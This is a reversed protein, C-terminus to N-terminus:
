HVFVHPSRSTVQRVAICTANHALELTEELQFKHLADIIQVFLTTEHTFTETIYGQLSPRHQDSQLALSIVNIVSQERLFVVFGAPRTSVLSISGLLSQQLAISNQWV